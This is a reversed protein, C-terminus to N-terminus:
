ILNVKPVYSVGLAGRVLQRVKRYGLTKRALLSEAVAQTAKWNRDFGIINEIQKWMFTVYAGALETNGGFLYEASGVGNNFDSCLPPKKGGRLISEAVPGALSVFTDIKLRSITRRDIKLDPHFSSWPTTRCAGLTKERPVITVATFRKGVFCAAVAHGAEHYAINRLSKPM